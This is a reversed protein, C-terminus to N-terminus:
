ATSIAPYNSNYSYISLTVLAAPALGKIERPFVGNPLAKTINTVNTIDFVVSIYLQPSLPLTQM